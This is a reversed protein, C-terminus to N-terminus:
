YPVGKENGDILDKVCDGCFDRYIPRDGSTMLITISGKKFEGCQNCFTEENPFWIIDKRFYYPGLQWKKM